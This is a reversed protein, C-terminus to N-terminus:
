YPYPREFVPYPKLGNDPNEELCRDEYPNCEYGDPCQDDSECACYSFKADRCYFGDQGTFCPVGMGCVDHVNPESFCETTRETRVDGGAAACDEASPYLAYFGAQSAEPLDEINEIERAPARGMAAIALVVIVVLGIGFGLLVRKESIVKQM